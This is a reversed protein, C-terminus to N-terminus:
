KGEGDQPLGCWTWNKTRPIDDPEFTRANYCTSCPDDSEELEYGICFECKDRLSEIIAKERAEAQEARATLNAIREANELANVIAESKLEEIEREQSELRDAAENCAESLDLLEKSGPSLANEWAIHSLRKKGERLLNAIEKVMNAQESM